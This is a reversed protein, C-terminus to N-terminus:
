YRKCCSQSLINTFYHKQFLEDTSFILDYPAEDGSLWVAKAEGGPPNTASSSPFKGNEAIIEGWGQGWWGMGADWTEGDYYAKRINSAGSADYWLMSATSGSHGTLSPKLYASYNGFEHYVNPNLNKVYYIVDYGLMWDEGEWSTHITGNQSLAATPFNHGRGDRSNDIGNCLHTPSTWSIGYRFYAMSYYVHSDEIWFMKLYPMGDDYVLTPYLGDDTGPVSVRSNWLSGTVDTSSKTFINPAGATYNIRYAVTMEFPSSTKDVAITPWFDNTIGAGYLYEIDEINQWNGQYKCRFKVWNYFNDKNEQWVVYINGNREAIAPYKSVINPDGGHDSIEYPDGWTLGGDNSEIIYIKYNDEYVLHYNYNERILNRGNNYLISENSGTQPFNSFEINKWTSNGGDPHWAFLNATYHDTKYGSVDIYSDEYGPAVEDKWPRAYENNLSNTIECRIHAIRSPRFYIKKDLHDYSINSLSTTSSGHMDTLERQQGNVYVKYSAAAVSNGSNNSGDWLPVYKNANNPGVTNFYSLQMTKVLEDNTTYINAREGRYVNTFTYWTPYNMDIPQMIEDGDHDYWGVQGKTYYCYGASPENRMVCPVSSPNGNICNGNPFNLYGGNESTTCGSSSYEDMAGFIHSTEHHTVDDMRNPTWNANNYTMVAVIDNVVYAFYDDAFKHDNDNEDMVVFYVYAWDTWNENRIRNVYEYIGDWKNGSVGVYDLADDIWNFLWTITLLKPMHDGQIPEFDTPVAYNVIYDWRVDIGLQYGADSIKNHGHVIESITKQEAAPWWNEDIGSSEMLFIGVTTSGMLYSSTFVNEGSEIIEKKINNLSEQEEETLLECNDLPEGEEGYNQNSINNFAYAAHKSIKLNFLNPDVYNRYIQIINQHESLKSEMGEPIYALMIEPEFVHRVHAGSFNVHDIIQQIESRTLSNNFVILADTTQAFVQFFLGCLIFVILIKKLLM